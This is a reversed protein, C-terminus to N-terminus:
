VNLLSTPLHTFLNTVVLLLASRWCCCSPTMRRLHPPLLEYIFAEPSSTMIMLNSKELAKLKMWVSTISLLTVNFLSVLWSVPFRKRRTGLGFQRESGKMNQQFCIWLLPDMSNKQNRHANYIKHQFIKVRVHCEIEHIVNSQGTLKFNFIISFCDTVGGVFRAKM